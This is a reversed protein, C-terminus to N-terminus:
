RQMRTRPSPPLISKLLWLFLGETFPLACLFLAALGIGISKATVKLDTKYLYAGLYLPAIILGQPKILICVAYLFAGLYLKNKYVCILSLVMFLTFFSDMQGWMASNLVVAPNLGFVLMLVM